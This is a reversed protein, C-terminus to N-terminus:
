TYVGFRALRRSGSVSQRRGQGNGVIDKDGLPPLGPQSGKEAEEAARGLADLRALV